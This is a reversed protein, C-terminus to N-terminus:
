KRRIMAVLAVVALLVLVLFLMRWPFGTATGKFIGIVQALFTTGILIKLSQPHKEFLEFLASLGAWFWAWPNAKLITKGISLVGAHAAHACLLVLWGALLIVRTITKRM